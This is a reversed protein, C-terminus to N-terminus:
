EGASSPRLPETDQGGGYESDVLEEKTEPEGSTEAPLVAAKLCCNCTDPCGRHNLSCKCKCSITHLAVLHSPLYCFYIPMRSPFDIDGTHFSVRGNEPEEAIATNSQSM